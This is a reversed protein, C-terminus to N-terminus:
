QAKRRTQSFRTTTPMPYVTQRDIYDRLARESVRLPQPIHPMRHMITYASRTSISMIEAVQPPSLLKEM